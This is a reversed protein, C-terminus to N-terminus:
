LSRWYRIAHAAAIAGDGVAKSVQLMGGIADGCAYLGPINTACNEDVRIRAGDIEAGVKRAFDTSGAVGVAVFVGDIPYLSGDELVLANVADEGVIDTIKRTDITITDPAESLDFAPALGLTFITVASASHSLELAEHLAYPGNGIVAVHKKRYFFADCVACYSVGRGEFERLGKIKPAIRSSGTALILVDAGYSRQPTLVTLKELWSLGTVEDHVLEVGLNKAQSLGAEFLAQGTMPTPFGYYNEIASAKSLAGGDRYIVTTPISARVLYIAASIGAPGAGIIVAQKM